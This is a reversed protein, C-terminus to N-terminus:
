NFKRFVPKISKGLLYKKSNGLLAKKYIEFAKYFIKKTKKIVNTKHRYCISIFSPMLISSKVMEQMLITRLILSNKKKKDLTTYIPSCPVGSAYLYDILGFEKSVANFSNIFNLGNDWNQKIVNNKKIFKLTEVFAGLSSMEAGFTSSLLFVREKGKKEISGLEMIERKGCVASISFGNAMAKGFTSLDPKVGYMAQAGGLNWRFGTIMEDLIFIIKNENCLAQVEKLFNNNKFKKICPSKGCCQLGDETKPCRTTSPEMVVCSIDKKYKYIKSKLYEIDDYKFNITLKSINKPVGRKMITSGIFWDDYSFFPHDGCRLVINKKTYARSLKVAATVASSGNKAFKVMEASKVTKLFLDSAELEIQSVKTLNNGFFIQKIAANNISKESYGINVARLAMGYDLFKNNFRDYLYVGKGKVFLEPSNISFQDFGRSYTHAGGPINRLLRKTIKGIM